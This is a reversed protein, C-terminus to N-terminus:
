TSADGGDYIIEEATTDVTETDSWGSFRGDTVQYAIAVEVSENVAVAGTHITTGSPEAGAELWSTDGAIRWRTFWTVDTETIADFVIAIRAGAFEDFEATATDITPAVLPALYVKSQTPAPEGDETAPNWTDVNPDVAIWEIIAGGTEHDTEGGVVEAVGDFFTEGSEEILLDIYREALAERASYVVRVMGRQPANARAMSRKALRRAQTHSPVQLDLPTNVTKGRATIDAEDRWPEPEVENFDHDASVHRVIIENLRNEDEVFEQVEYDIIQSPGISVTPAYLEGAFVKICGNEDEGTWGDFTALLQSEIEAPNADAAFMVCGRYRPETGGADLSMVEDCVDAADMWFDEVPAIRAAYDAGKFVTKFWLLHLVPNETYPWTSADDPDSYPDRPDHCFHGEAVLSMLVNDGQPYINLFNESKVGTKILYGSVIGDGRHNSTWAPVRSVVEVHATETLAGLNYGALVKDNGYSGDELEQVFGGDIMTIDDNLYIGTVANIPGELYAWVDVTESDTTNVFLMSAGHVRRVGFLHVRAPKPSKRATEAADPKPGGGSLLDSIFYTGAVYIATSAVTAATASLGIGILAPVLAQPM